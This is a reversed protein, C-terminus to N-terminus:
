AGPIYFLHNFLITFSVHKNNIFRFCKCNSLPLQYPLFGFVQESLVHSLLFFWLGYLLTAIAALWFINALLYGLLKKFYFLVALFFLKSTQYPQKTLTLNQLDLLHREDTVFFFIILHWFLPLIFQPIYTLTFCITPLLNPYNIKGYIFLSTTQFNADWQHDSVHLLLHRPILIGIPSFKEKEM